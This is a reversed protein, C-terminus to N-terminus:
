RARAVVMTWPLPNRVSVVDLHREVMRCFGRRGWHQIHDPTNGWDSLYRGRLMNGVRWLPELPVSLIIDRRAVRAIESLAREPEPLHELVEMALVLDFSGDPFPLRAADAFVGKVERAQWREAMTPHPLDIGCVWSDPYRAVVRESVHGEGVGVELITSADGAPLSRELRQMFNNVLRQEMPSTTTYKNFEEDSTLNSPPPTGRGASGQTM